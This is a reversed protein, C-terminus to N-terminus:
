YALQFYKRDYHNWQPDWAGRKNAECFGMVGYVGRGKVMPIAAQNLMRALNDAFDVMGRQTLEDAYFAVAYTNEGNVDIVRWTKIIAGRDLTVICNAIRAFAIVDKKDGVDAGINVEYMERPQNTFVDARMVNAQNNM